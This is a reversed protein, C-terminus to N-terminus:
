DPTMAAPAAATDLAERLLANKGDLAILLGAYTQKYLKGTEPAQAEVSYEAFLAAAVSPQRVNGLYALM